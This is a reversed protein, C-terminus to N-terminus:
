PGEGGAARRAAESDKFGLAALTFATIHDTLYDLDLAGFAAVGVVREGISRGIKYFLCQGVVSFVTAELRRGELDPRIQQLVECLRRFRPRIVERVLTESAATPRVLERLMLDHHWSGAKDVALVDGLFHRVQARLRAAPDSADDGPGSAAGACGRHAEIVALTYLNEKDGFHYNVAALNAGVRRIIARITAARFGKEAFERGAAELLRARTDDTASM